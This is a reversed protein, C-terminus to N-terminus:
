DTLHARALADVGEPGFYRAVLAAWSPSSRLGRLYRDLEALLRPDDRRTAFVYSQRSGVFVGLELAPDRGLAVLAEPLELLLSAVSGARLAARAGDLEDLEVPEAGSIKSDRMAAPARSGRLVGVRSWRLSEIAAIRPAPRRTVAVLRTPLVEVTLSLGGVRSDGALVGAVVDPDRPAPESSAGSATAVIARGALKGFVSLVASDFAATAGRTAVRLPAAPSATDAAAATGIPFTLLAVALVGARGTM